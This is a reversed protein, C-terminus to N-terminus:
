RKPKEGRLLDYEEDTLHTSLAVLRGTRCDNPELLIGHNPPIGVIRRARDFDTEGGDDLLVEGVLRAPVSDCMVEYGEGEYSLDPPAPCSTALMLSDSGAALVPVPDDPGCGLEDGDPQSVLACASLALGCIVLRSLTGFVLRCLSPQETGARRTM